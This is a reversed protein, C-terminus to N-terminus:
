PFLSEFPYAVPNSKFGGKQFNSAKKIKTYRQQGDDKPHTEYTLESGVSLRSKVGISVLEGNDMELDHFFTKRDGEGWEKVNDIRKVKSTKM